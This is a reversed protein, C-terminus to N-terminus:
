KVLAAKDTWRGVVFPNVKETHSACPRSMVLITYAAVKFVHSAGDGMLDIASEGNHSIMVAQSYSPKNGSRGTYYLDKAYVVFAEACEYGKDRRFINLSTERVEDSGSDAHRSFPPTYFPCEFCGCVPCGRGNERGGVAYEASKQASFRLSLFHAAIALGPDYALPTTSSKMEGIVDTVVSIDDPSIFPMLEALLSDLVLARKVGEHLARLFLAWVVAFTIHTGDIYGLKKLQNVVCEDIGTLNMAGPLGLIQEYSLHGKLEEVPSPPYTALFAFYEGPPVTVATIKADSERSAFISAFMGETTKFHNVIVELRTGSPFFVPPEDERGMVKVIIANDNVLPPLLGPGNTEEYLRVFDAPSYEEPQLPDLFYMVWRGWKAGQVYLVSGDPFEVAIYYAAHTLDEGPSSTQQSLKGNKCRCAADGCYRTDVHKCKVNRPLRGHRLKSRLERLIRALDNRTLAKM